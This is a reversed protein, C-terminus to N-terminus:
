TMPYKSCALSCEGLEKDIRRHKFKKKDMSKDELRSITKSVTISEKKRWVKALTIFVRFDMTSHHKFGCKVCELPQDEM